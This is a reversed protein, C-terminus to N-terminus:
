LKGAIVITRHGLQQSLAAVFSASLPPWNWFRFILTGFGMPDVHEWQAVTERHACHSCTLEGPGGGHWDSLADSWARDQPVMRACAPCVLGTFEGQNNLVVSRQTGVELGNTLLELFNASTPNEVASMYRRGPRHGLSEGLVCDTLEAVIVEQAILWALVTHALQQADETSAADRDVITQYHSGM